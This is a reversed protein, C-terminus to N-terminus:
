GAPISGSFNPIAHNVDSIIIRATRVGLSDSTDRLKM